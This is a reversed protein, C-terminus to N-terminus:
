NWPLQDQRTIMQQSNAEEAKREIQIVSMERERTTWWHGTWSFTEPCYERAKMAAYSTDRIPGVELLWISKEEEKQCIKDTENKKNFIKLSGTVIDKGRNGFAKQVENYSNYVITYKASKSGNRKKCYFPSCRMNEKEKECFPWIEMVKSTSFCTLNPIWYSVFRRMNMVKFLSRTLRRHPDGEKLNEWFSITELLSHLMEM